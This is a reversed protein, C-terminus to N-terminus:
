GIIQEISQRLQQLDTSQLQGLKKIVLRKELTTIVPKIMSPKLLGAAQWDQVQFEGVSLAPQIQSTVAMVILDPKSQQYNMSSIIVAPRKKQSTQNTFPFPV